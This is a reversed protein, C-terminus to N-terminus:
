AVKLQTFGNQKVVNIVDCNELLDLLNPDHTTVLVQRDRALECIMKYIGHIGQIDVNIAVEDLSIMNVFVNASVMTVYAFAQSIALNIRRREGGSTANYVFPDGDPPNREIIPEFERDFKLQLKNEILFQLWYNMRANLAPLIDDIIFARIGKDGFGTVWFEYYPLLEDRRSIEKKCVNIKEQTETLDEQNTKIIDEFPNLQAEKQKSLLQVELSKLQEQLQIQKANVIPEKVKSLTAIELTLKSIQLTLEQIKDTGEKKVVAFKTLRSDLEKVKKDLTTIKNNKITLIEEEIKSLRNNNHQLYNVYYEQKIPGFCVKCQVGNQLSNIRINQDELGKKEGLLLQLEHNADKLALLTDHKEGIIQTNVQALKDLTTDVRTKEIEYLEIKNRNLKISEQAQQFKILSLSDDSANILEEKKLIINNQIYNIETEREQAWQKQKLQVQAIRDEVSKKSSLLVEYEKVSIKQEAELSNRIQSAKKCFKVYKELALLNEVVSRKEEPKLTLFSHNNHEGFCAVNIFAQYNLKILEEIAEQTHQQGGRTENLPKSPDEPDSKSLNYLELAGSSATKRTRIIKYDQGNAEFVIEVQLNKKTKKNIAEKHNLKKIMEGYLAYVICEYISSKGAGNSSQPSIDLNQGKIVVINSLKTFDIEIGESGFSLFNKAKISKIKM